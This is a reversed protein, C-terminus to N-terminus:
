LVSTIHNLQSRGKLLFVAANQVLGKLPLRADLITTDVRSIALAQTVM